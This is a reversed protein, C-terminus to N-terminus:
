LDPRRPLEARYALVDVLSSLQSDDPPAPTARYLRMVAEPPMRVAMPWVIAILLLAAVLGAAGWLLVTPITVLVVFGLALLLAHQLNPGRMSGGSTAAALFPPMKGRRMSSIARARCPARGEAGSARSIGWFLTKGIIFAANSPWPFAPFLPCQACTS